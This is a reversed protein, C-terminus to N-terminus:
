GQVAHHPGFLEVSSSLDYHQVTQPRTLLCRDDEPYYHACSIDSGSHKSPIKM